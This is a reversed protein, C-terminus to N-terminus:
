YLAVTIYILSIFLSLTSLAVTIFTLVNSKNTKIEVPLYLAIITLASFVIPIFYRGQVGDVFKWGVPTFILYLATFVSTIYVVSLAALWIIINKMKKIENRAYLAVCLLLSSTILVIGIPVQISNGSVTAFMGKYYADGFRVFTRSIVLVYNLPDIVIMKLQESAIVPLHDAREAIGQAHSSLYLWIASLLFMIVTFLVKFKTAKKKGGLIHSPIFLILVSIILQNIKTLPILIGSIALAWKAISKEKENKSLYLSVLSAFFLITLAILINDATTMSAQFIATPMLGLCFILWRLRHDRLLWIAFSVILIYIGLSLIRSLLLTDLVSMKFLKGILVAIIPGPYSVPSYNAIIPTFSETSSFQQSGIKNYASTDTVDKRNLVSTKGTDDLIDKIRYNTLEIFNDPM